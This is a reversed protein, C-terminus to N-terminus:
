TGVLWVYLMCGVCIRAAAALTALATVILTVVWGAASLGLMFLLTASGLFSVALLQSFRPPAAWETQPESALRPRVTRVYLQTFPGWRPGVVRNLTVGLWAVAVLPWWAFIFGLGTLAAVAAQNFRPVNVDIQPRIATTM